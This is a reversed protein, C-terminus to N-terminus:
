KRMAAFLKAIEEPSVLHDGDLSEVSPEKPKSAPTAEDVSPTAGNGGGKRLGSETSDSEHALRSRSATEPDPQMEQSQGIADTNPDTSLEE